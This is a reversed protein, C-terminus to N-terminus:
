DGGEDDDHPQLLPIALRMNEVLYKPLIITHIVMVPLKNKTVRAM